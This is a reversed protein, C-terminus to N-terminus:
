LLFNLPIYTIYLYKCHSEDDSGNEGDSRNEGDSGNEGDDPHLVNHQENNEQANANEM